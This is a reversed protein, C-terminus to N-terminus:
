QTIEQSYLSVAGLSGALISDLICVMLRQYRKLLILLLQNLLKIMMLMLKTMQAVTSSISSAIAANTEAAVYHPTSALSTAAIELGHCSAAMRFQTEEIKSDITQRMTWLSMLSLIVILLYQTLYSRSLKAHLGIYSSQMTKELKRNVSGPVRLAIKYLLDGVFRNMKNNRRKQQLM